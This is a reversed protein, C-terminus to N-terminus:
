GVERQNALWYHIARGAVMGQAIAQVVTAGGNVADGGAFIQPQDTQLTEQNVSITGAETTSLGLAGTLEKDLAQGLALLVGDCPLEYSVARTDPEVGCRGDTQVSTLRMPQVEVAQVRGDRGSIAKITSLWRFEVGLSSAELYESRWAPMEEMTRRYLVIVRGAGLRKAVTAADLAVNGGGLVVVCQGLAPRSVEGRAFLRAQRLFGLASMVGPLEVGSISLTIYRSLGIGLFLADYEQLLRGAGQGDIENGLHFDIGLQSLRTLEENVVQHPLRLSPIVQDTLGGLTAAREFLHVIHGFRRLTIACSLGSPGGGIIAVRGPSRLKEIREPQQFNSAVLYQLAGIRIPSQGLRRLVCAGECLDSTPCILGCIAPFPNSDVLIQYSGEFNEEELRRIFGPVDIHTPCAQSCPAEYCDLCRRAEFLAQSRDLLLLPDRQNEQVILPALNNM